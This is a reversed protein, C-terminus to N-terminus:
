DGARPKRGRRHLDHVRRRGEAGTRHARHPARLGGPHQPVDFNIVHTVGAIDLGRAAIDTAVMVEYRGERFGALADEREKQARDSHLVAVKHGEAILRSAVQDAGIKMRCFVIVSEYHTQELMGHLLDFKQASACPYLNHTM